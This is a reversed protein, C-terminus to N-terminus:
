KAPIEVWGDAVTAPAKRVSVFPSPAVPPSAPQSTCAPADSFRQAYDGILRGTADDDYFEYHDYDPYRPVPEGGNPEDTGALMWALAGSGGGRLMIENWRTYARERTAWGEVVPGLAGGRRGVKVGYEELVSPKDLERAVALHDRIWQEGWGVETGWDEPYLHFTGFDVAPLATLARNDVGDNAKYAWHEGGGNLFGEDGVSVLHKGDLSKVYRSMEDAWDTLTSTSWGSPRDFASGNKMRPENALEWAFVTPDDAYRRGNLGNVRTVVHAVWNEYARKLEPASFFAQHEDRGYWMLYQDVGGFERWNNVLVVIVKLDLEAARALVYDLHALGTEGDNYAPAKSVPDWYQFYVGEKAGGGPDADPVSWDLSGRDLMGWVRLVRLHLSRAARFLDDVVPRPKYIPYYANSGAFCFPKGELEFTAPPKVGAELPAAAPREPAKVCGSAVLAACTVAVARAACPRTLEAFPRM